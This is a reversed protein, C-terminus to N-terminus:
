VCSAGAQSHVPQMQQAPTANPEPPDMPGGLQAELMRYSKPQVDRFKTGENM